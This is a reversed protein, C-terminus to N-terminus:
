RLKIVINNITYQWKDDESEYHNEEYENIANKLIKVEEENLELKMFDGILNM